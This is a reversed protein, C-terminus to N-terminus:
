VKVIQEAGVCYRRKIENLEDLSGANFADLMWEPWHQGKIYNQKFQEEQPSLYKGDEINALRYNVMFSNVWSLVFNLAVGTRAPDLM